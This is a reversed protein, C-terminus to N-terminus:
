HWATVWRRAPDAPYSRSIRRAAKDQASTWPPYATPNPSPLLADSPWQTWRTRLQWYSTDDTARPPLWERDDEDGNIERLVEDDQGRFTPGRPRTLQRAKTAMAAPGLVAVLGEMLQRRTLAKRDFSIVLDDVSLHM